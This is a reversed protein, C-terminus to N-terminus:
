RIIVNQKMKILVYRRVLEVDLAYPMMLGLINLDVPIKKCQSQKKPCVSVCVGCGCCQEKNEFLVIENKM